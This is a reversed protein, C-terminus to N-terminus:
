PISIVKVVYPASGQSQSNKYRVHTDQTIPAVGTTVPRTHLLYLMGHAPMFLTKSMSEIDVFGASILWLNM